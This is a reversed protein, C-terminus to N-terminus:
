KVVEYRYNESLVESLCRTISDKEIYYKMKENERIVECNTEILMQNEEKLNEHALVKIDLADELVKITNWCRKIDKKLDLLEFSYKTNRTRLEIFSEELTASM